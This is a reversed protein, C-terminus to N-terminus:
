LLILQACCILVRIVSAYTRYENIALQQLPTYQLFAFGVHHVTGNLQIKAVFYMEAFKLTGVLLCLGEELATTLLM